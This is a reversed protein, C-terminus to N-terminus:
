EDPADEVPTESLLLYQPNQSFPTAYLFREVIRHRPLPNFTVVVKPDRM